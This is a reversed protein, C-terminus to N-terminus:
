KIGYQIDFRGSAKNGSFTVTYTQNSPLLLDNSLQQDIQQEVLVQDGNSILMKLSGSRKEVKYSVYGQGEGKLDMRFKQRGTLNSFGAYNHGPADSGQWTNATKGIYRNCASMCFVFVAWAVLEKIRM